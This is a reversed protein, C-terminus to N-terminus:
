LVVCSVVFKGQVFFIGGEWVYDTGPTCLGFKRVSDVKNALEINGLVCFDPM